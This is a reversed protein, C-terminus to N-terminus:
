KTEQLINDRSNNTIDEKAQNFQVILENYSIEIMSEIMDDPTFFEVTKNDFCVDKGQYDQHMRWVEIPDRWIGHMHAQKMKNNILYLYSDHIFYYPKRGTYKNGVIYKYTEFTTRNFKIAGDYSTVMVNETNDPSIGFPLKYKSKMFPCKYTGGCSLPIQPIMEICHLPQYDWESLPQNKRLRQVMLRSRISILKNYILRSSLRSDDSAVGKSYLNQLRAIVQGVIM